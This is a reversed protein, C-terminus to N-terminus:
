GFCLFTNLGPAAVVLQSGCPSWFLALEEYFDPAFEPSCKEYALDRMSWSWLCKHHSGDMLCITGDMNAIAYVCRSALNPHWAISKAQWMHARGTTEVEIHACSGTLEVHQLSYLDAHAIGAEDTELLYAQRM